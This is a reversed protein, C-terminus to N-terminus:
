TTRAMPCITTIRRTRGTTASIASFSGFPGDNNFSLSLTLIAGSPVKMQISLDM